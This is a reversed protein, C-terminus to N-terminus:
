NFKKAIQNPGGEDEGAEGTVVMVVGGSWQWWWIRGDGGEAM